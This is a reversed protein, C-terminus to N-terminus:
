MPSMQRIQRLRVELTKKTLPGPINEEQKPEKITAEEQKHELSPAPTEYAPTVVRERPPQMPPELLAQATQIMQKCMELRQKELEAYPYTMWRQEQTQNNKLRAEYAQLVTDLPENVKEVLM